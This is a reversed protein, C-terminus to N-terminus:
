EEVKLSGLPLAKLRNNLHRKDITSRIKGSLEFVKYTRGDEDLEIYCPAQSRRPDKNVYFTRQKVLHEPIHVDDCPNPGLEETAIEPQPAGVRDGLQGDPLRHYVGPELTHRPSLEVDSVDEDLDEPSFTTRRGTGFTLPWPQAPGSPPTFPGIPQARRSIAQLAQIQINIEAAAKSVAASSAVLETKMQALETFLSRLTEPDLSITDDAIAVGANTKLQRRIEASHLPFDWRVSPTNSAECDPCAVTSMLKDRNTWGENGVDREMRVVDGETVHITEFDILRQKHCFDCVLMFAPRNAIKFYGM